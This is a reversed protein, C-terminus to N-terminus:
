AMKCGTGPDALAEAAVGIVQNMGGKVERLYINQVPNHSASLTFPGRPSDIKAKAMAAQMEKEASTDGKVADLGVLLLQAADYGQVAYVDSPRNAKKQFAAKFENDRLTNLGDGYHLATQLGEAAAGQAKLTGETLFGSGCLPVKLGAAAYDKVFQVAGGGAFFCGVAEVGLGPIQALIPQFNTEPFPLKLTQVVKGGGEEFAQRFGEGAEDGAAYNWTVWVAKKMGKKALAKGMGYAPQWNTFSTRFINPACLERTASKNGANPIILLTGTDRVLQILSMQVGSHVTGIVVDVKDRNVIRNANDNAKSPDAEDDLKIIEVDRGALKGGHEAVVMEVGHTINEGLEAYTGSYPLMLGIKLKAKQGFAIRMPLAAAIAGAAGATLIARRSPTSSKDRSM